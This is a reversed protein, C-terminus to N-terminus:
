IKSLQDIINDIDNIESKDSKSAQILNSEMKEMENNKFSPIFVDVEEDEIKKNQKNLNNNESIIINEIITPDKELIKHLLSEINLLKKELNNDKKEDIIKKNIELNNTYDVNENNSFITFDKCGCNKIDNLFQSLKHDQIKIIGPSRFAPIGMIDIFLGVDKIHISLM